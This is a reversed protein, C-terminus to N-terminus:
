RFRKILLKIENNKNILFLIKVINNKLKEYLLSLIHMYSKKCIM